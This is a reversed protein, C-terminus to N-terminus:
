LFQPLLTQRSPAQEAANRFSSFADSGKSVYTEFASYDVTFITALSEKRAIHALIADAFDMPRDRYRQMLAELEALDEAVIPM